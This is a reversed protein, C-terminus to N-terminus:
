QSIFSFREQREPSSMLVELIAQSERSLDLQTLRRELTRLLECALDFSLLNDQNEILMKQKIKLRLLTHLSRLHHLGSLLSLHHFGPGFYLKSFVRMYLFRNILDDVDLALNGLKFNIIETFKRAHDSQGFTVSSPASVLEQLLARANLDYTSEAFVQDPFYLRELHKLLIQDVIKPRSEFKPDREALLPGALEKRLINTVEALKSAMETPVAENSNANSEVIAMLNKDLISFSDWNLAHGDILQLQQWLETKPNFLAKFVRFQSELTEPQEALLTGTNYLVATSAFSLTCLVADPTTTFSYPFLRCMSPKAEIGFELHLRCRKDDLLFECSGDSNKELTHTFALLSNRSSRLNRMAADTNLSSNKSSIREYDEQTLPVPWQLCCNSCGSCDFRIGKPSKIATSMQVQIAGSNISQFYCIISAVSYTKRHVSM